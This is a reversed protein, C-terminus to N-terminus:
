ELEVCPAPKHQWTLIVQNKHEATAREAAQLALEPLNNRRSLHCLWLACKPLRFGRRGLLEDSQDNSLHGESSLIREKLWPPDKGDRVMEEEHNFELLLGDLGDLFDQVGVDAVGLDTAFGVRDNIRLLVTGPSDHETETRQARSSEM